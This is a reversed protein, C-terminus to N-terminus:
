LNIGNKETRILVKDGNWLTTAFLYADGGDSLKLTRRIADVTDPFNRVTINAKEVDPCRKRFVKRQYPLTDLVRFIRGPFNAVCDDSTFLHSNPHLKAVRYRNSVYDFVGAKMLSANPEYLYAGVRDAFLIGDGNFPHCGKLPSPIRKISISDREYPHSPKLNVCVLEIDSTPQESSLLFLLEKCENDSSVVHVSRAEPLQKLAQTIDLMPSAKILVYRAKELLLSRIAVVDPECDSLMVVKSGVSSRRAPDLYLLDVPEMTALYDLSDAEHVCVNGGGMANFNHYAAACLAPQREVYDARELGRSFFWSDVGLGGTLDAMCRIPQFPLAQVLGAKYRATIESSCQELSLLHPFLLDDAFLAWSPVKKAVVQLGKIQRIVREADLNRRGSLKLALKLVDDGAHQRIFGCEEPTPQLVM